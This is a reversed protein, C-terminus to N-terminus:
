TVWGPGEVIFLSNQYALSGPGLKGNALFPINRCQGGSDLLTHFTGPQPNLLTIVGKLDGLLALIEALVGQIFYEQKRYQRGPFFVTDSSEM